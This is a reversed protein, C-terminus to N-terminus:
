TKPRLANLFSELAERRNDIKKEQIKEGKNNLVSIYVFEKHLDMGVYQVM